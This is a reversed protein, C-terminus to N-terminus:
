EMDSLFKNELFGELNDKISKVFMGALAGDIVRHDYSLSLYAIQRIGITDGSPTEVVAPMKKIAGIGLIAAQPQNIIPTGMLNGVTGYNTITFTGGSIEDPKLKSARARTALDNVDRALGVISLEDAKKIVPVILNGNPLATAMGININKKKIINTGDVSINVMPYQRIARATAEFFIPTLTLKVGEKAMFSDKVKNRWTVIDTVDVDIFTTVHPSTRKSKVMHEAILKRVRDMEIIEDGSDTVIGKPAEIAPSKSERSKEVSKQIEQEAISKLFNLIDDKTVRGDMGSGAITDLDSFSINEEDAIKRVLPSLYKGEPTRSKLESSSEEEEKKDKLEKSSAEKILKYEKEVPEKLEEASEESGESELFAIIDGVKPADGENFALGRIIGNGPSPIETDVKDTAVEVIPDDEEVVDGEKVLWKTISAEIIGEGMAPLFIETKAM